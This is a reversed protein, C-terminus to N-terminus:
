MGYLGVGISRLAIVEKVAMCRSESVGSGAWLGPALGARRAWGILLNDNVM